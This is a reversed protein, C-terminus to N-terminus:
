FVTFVVEFQNVKYRKWSNSLGVADAKNKNLSFLLALRRM